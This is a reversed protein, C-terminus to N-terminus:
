SKPKEEQVIGAERLSKRFDRWLRKRKNYIIYYVTIGILGELALVLVALVEFNIKHQDTGMNEYNLNEKSDAIRYENVSPLSLILYSGSESIMFQVYNESQTTRCKIIDGNKDLHYVSYILDERKDPIDIQVIAEELPQITQYNFRFSIDIGEVKEFGYGKALDYIKKEHDADIEDVTVYYTDGVFTLSRRDPLSLDLGSFSLDHRLTKDLIVYNRHDKEFLKLDLDRIQKMTFLYDAKGINSKLFRYDDHEVAESIKKKLDFLRKSYPIQKEISLGCYHVDVYRIGEEEDDVYSVMDSNLPILSNKGDEYVVNLSVGKLDLKDDSGSIEKFEGKLEINEIKRYSPHDEEDFGCFEYADKRIDPRFNEKNKTILDVENLGHFDGDFDYHVVEFAEEAIKDENIIHDVDEKHLYAVSREPDYLHEDSFSHDIRVKYMEENQDLIIFSLESVNSLSFSRQEATEDEYFVIRDKDKIIGLAYSDLDRNGLKSDLEFCAAASKEGYYPDISYNVNLGGIKDGFFTGEYDGRKHNSSRQSVFYRAHTYISDEVDKFRRNERDEDNEYVALTYLNNSEYSYLSRGYASENVASGLLMLANAGYLDQCVYFSDIQDYLQSRNIEDAANDSNLDSYHDIRGNMGFTEYFLEEMEKLSHNTYSRYPLYQFYNYYAEENVANEISNNRLDDILSPLDEYFYHGDSSYYTRGQKLFSPAKDIALSYAYFDYDLQNKINHLLEFGRVQYSTIRTDLESLPHLIVEDIDIVGKDGSIMFTVSKGNSSTDIYVADASYCGNIYDTRNKNLSRYEHNLTCAEDRLFEVIGYKMMIVKEGYRLVLDDNEEINEMYFRYARDYSDFSEDIGSTNDYVRYLDEQAYLDLPEIIMFLIVSLVFVCRFVKM